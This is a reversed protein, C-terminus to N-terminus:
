MRVLGAEQSFAKAGSVVEVREEHDSTESAAIAAVNSGRPAEDGLKM